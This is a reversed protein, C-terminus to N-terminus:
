FTYEAAYYPLIVYNGPAVGLSDSDELPLHNIERVERLYDDIGRYHSCDAYREVLVQLEDLDTVLVSTYYKYEQTGAEDAHSTLSCLTLALILVLAASLLVTAPVRNQKGKRGAFARDRCHTGRRRYGRSRDRMEVAQCFGHVGAKMSIGRETRCDIRCMYANAFMHKNLPTYRVCTQTDVRM